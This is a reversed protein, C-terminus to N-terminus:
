FDSQSKEQQFLTRWSDRSGESAMREIEAAEPPPQKWFREGFQGFLYANYARLTEEGFREVLRAYLEDQLERQRRLFSVEGKYFYTKGTFSSGVVFYGAGQLFSAESELFALSVEIFRRVNERDSERLTGIWGRVERELM